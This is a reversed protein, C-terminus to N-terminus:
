PHNYAETQPGTLCHDAKRDERKPVILDTGPAIAVPHVYRASHSIRGVRDGDGGTSVGTGDLIDFIDFGSMALAIARWYGCLFMKVGKCGEPQIRPLM